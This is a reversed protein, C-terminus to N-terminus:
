ERCDHVHGHSRHAVVARAFLELTPQWVKSALKLGGTLHRAYIKAAKRNRSTWAITKSPRCTLVRPPTPYSLTFSYLSTWGEAEGSAM